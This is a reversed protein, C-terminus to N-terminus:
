SGNSSGWCVGGDPFDLYVVTDCRTLRQPITRNYNGDIIWRPKSLEELVLRDFEERSIHQWNDRWWIKDLHVVPLGTKKGWERALTSKGSGGCGLIIIREM